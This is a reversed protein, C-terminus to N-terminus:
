QDQSRHDQYQQHQQQHQQQNSENPDIAPFGTGFVGSMDAGYLDWELSMPMQWLDQPIFPQQFSEANLPSLGTTAYASDDGFNSSYGNTSPNFLTSYDPSGFDPMPPVNANGNRLARPSSYLSDNMSGGFPSGNLDANISPNFVSKPTAANTSRQGQPTFAQSSNSQNGNVETGEVNSKRKRRSNAERDAKELVVKSIRMFERCIGEMRKVGGNEEDNSLLSLFNVVLDMLKIDSRVRPDQPNQLINAFLTVLASVPFYLILRYHILM